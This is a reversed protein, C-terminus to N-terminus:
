SPILFFWVMIVGHITFLKNYTEMAVVGGGPSLLTIRMFTAAVGGVLFMLTISVMYLIGIRKHDTSLLWSRATTGASLYTEAHPRELAVTAVIMEGPPARGPIVATGRSRVARSRAARAVPYLRRAALARRRHRPGQLHAHDAAVRARDQQGARRDIRPPLGRGGHRHTRRDAAGAPRVLGRAWPGAAAFRRPSVHQLGAASVAQLRA